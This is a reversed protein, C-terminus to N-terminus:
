RSFFEHLQAAVVPSACPCSIGLRPNVVRLVGDAGTSFTRAAVAAPSRMPLRAATAGTRHVERSSVTPLAPLAKM